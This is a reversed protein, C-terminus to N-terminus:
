PVFEMYNMPIHMQKAISIEAQIGTSKEWGDMMVVTLRESHRLMHIDHPGWFAWNGALGFREAIHHNHVIPSFVHVGDQILRAVVSSIDRYRKERVQKDPDYYPSALYIM